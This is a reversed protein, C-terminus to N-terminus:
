LSYIFVNSMFITPQMNNHSNGSGTSATTFTHTHNGSSNSTFTHTHNGSADISLASPTTWVNLEGSSADTEVVTNGGNATVLGLNGQGGNANSTHTHEGSSDTTGTHSHVGSLDTTGTHTHAPMQATTLTHTESGILSGMTRNTLGSGNGLIGLVRGRCDPLNFSESDISGFSTGIIEFLKPYMIISISKGDCKLWGNHDQSQISYKLDGAYTPKVEFFHQDSLNYTGDNLYMKGYKYVLKKSQQQTM